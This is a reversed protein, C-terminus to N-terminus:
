KIKYQIITINKQKEMGFIINILKEIFKIEDSDDIQKRHAGVWVYDM